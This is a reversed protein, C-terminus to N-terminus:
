LGWVQGLRVFGTTGEGHRVQAWGERPPAALELLVDQEAEFLVPAKDDAQARVQARPVRVILTHRESLLRSEIWALSGSSDRVKSWDGRSLVLEVPTGRLIVWQKAGKDSPTERLVAVEKVSRFDLAHATGAAALTILTLFVCRLKM